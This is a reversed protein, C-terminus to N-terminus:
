LGSDGGIDQLPLHLGEGRGDLPEDLSILIKFLLHVKHIFTVGLGVIFMVLLVVILVFM